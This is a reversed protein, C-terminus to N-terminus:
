DLLFVIFHAHTVTQRASHSVSISRKMAGAEISSLNKANEGDGRDYQDHNWKFPFSLVTEDCKMELLEADSNRGVLHFFLEHKGYEPSDFQSSFISNHWESILNHASIFFSPLFSLLWPISRATLARKSSFPTALETVM